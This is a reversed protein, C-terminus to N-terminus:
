AEIEGPGGWRTVIICCMHLLVLRHDEDDGDDNYEGRNNGNVLCLTNNGKNISNYNRELSCVVFM